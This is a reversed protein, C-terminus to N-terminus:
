SRRSRIGGNRWFWEHRMYFRVYKSSDSHFWMVYENNKLANLEHVDYPCLPWVPCTGQQQITSLCVVFLSSLVASSCHRIGQEGKPREVINTNSIM